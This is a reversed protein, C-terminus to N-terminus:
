MVVGGNPSFVWGAYFSAEESAVFRVTAAVDEPQGWRGLPVGSLTQDNYEDPCSTLLPTEIPGPAVANVHVGRPALERALAKTFAIVGGKSASYHVMSAAGVLGLESAVNIIKGRGLDQMVPVVARCTNYVSKLNVEIMEDWQEETIDVFRRHVSIGANNVLVDVAGLAAQGATLAQDVGSTSAVDVEAVWRRELGALEALEASLTEPLPRRDLLLLRDGEGAFVRAVAAGIGSAAGTIAVTRPARSESM